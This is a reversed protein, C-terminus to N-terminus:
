NNNTTQFRSDPLQPEQKSMSAVWVKITQDRGGSYIRKGDASVALCIVGNSHATITLTEYGTELDWVKLTGDASGSVMRRRDIAAVCTVDDGHGHLTRVEQGSSADWIKVTRDYSGSLIYQGSASFAVSRVTGGHGRLTQDLARSEVNHVKITQDLGGSVLRRSDPSFAVSLVAKEHAHFTVIEKGSAADWLKVTNDQYGGGSAIHRGDPSWAVCMVHFTHGELSLLQRYTQADWVKVTRDGSSSAIRKGDPSFAWGTVTGRHGVFAGLLRGNAADWMDMDPETSPSSVGVRGVPSVALSVVSSRFASLTRTEDGVVKQGVNWVKIMTDSSGSLVRQGDPLWAVGNVRGSHGRLVHIERGTALHWVRVTKDDSGSVIYKGDASVAVSRIPLGHGPLGEALRGSEVEWVRVDRDDGGSVIHKSNPTFALCNVVNTNGSHPRKLRHGTEADFVNLSDILRSPMEGTAVRKGDPSWAICRVDRYLSQLTLIEEGTVADWIKTVQNGGGSAIRRGDPSVAVALVHNKHAMTTLITEGTEADWVRVTQDRSGTVIWKGDPSFALCTVSKTHGQLTKVRLGSESDFVNVTEEGSGIVFRKGDPSLAMCHVLKLEEDLSRQNRITRQNSFFLTALYDHEWGRLDAQGTTLHHHALSVNGSDWAQQALNIQSVYLMWQSRHLLKEVQGAAAKAKAEEQTARQASIVAASRAQLAEFLGLTTGVIGAVLALLVATAALVPRRHRQVFKRLRYTPSPPCAVVPENSLYNQLDAALASASEYRRARDKDLAKMVIWDLEGRVLKTLRAPETGRFAAISALTPGSPEAPGSTGVHVAPSTGRPGRSRSESLRTSPKEPDEERIIRLMEDWAASRLRVKDLPTSGTLLEYMLVGLSYIDSRTDIDIQNVKAQEPSMYELTGVIQGLGTFMTKETLTQSVAKAVGFDIVKPVPQNDYEAVLINTPKIDRHIIGKQHAHQIAQCVPMLLELRQRPTLHHEDCYETIPQGKVLEMVFYPRGSETTGADFVKAINPHDMLSLAQREAEFRAIVQRSDMGPKIIKLAVRRSMPEAQEAMYVVGMGGEGIPQLLKYPGIQTGAHESIPPDLTAMAVQRPVEHFAGIQAHAQLLQEVQARLAADDGCVQQLLAPWEGPPREIAALFISKANQSDVTM